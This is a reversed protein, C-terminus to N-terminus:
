APKLRRIISCRNRIKTCFYSVLTNVILAFGPVNNHKGSTIVDWLQGQSGNCAAQQIPTLNARFDGSLEDVFLCQGNSTQFLYTLKGLVMPLRSQYPGQDGCWQSRSHRYRRAASGRPFCSSQPEDGYAKGYPPGFRFFPCPRGVSLFYTSDNGFSCTFLTFTHFSLLDRSAPPFSRLISPFSQSVTTTPPFFSQHPFNLLSDNYKFTWSFRNQNVM